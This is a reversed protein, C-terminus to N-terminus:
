CTCQGCHNCYKIWCRSGFSYNNVAIVGLRHEDLVPSIFSNATTFYVNTQFSNQYQSDKTNATYTIQQRTEFDFNKNLPFVTASGKSTGNSSTSFYRYENATNSFELIESVIKATDMNLNATANGASSLQNDFRAYGSEQTFNCSNLIFMLGENELGDQM